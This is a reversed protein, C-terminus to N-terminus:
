LVRWEIPELGPLKGGYFRKATNYELDVLTGGNKNANTSCCSTKPCDSDDCTDVITAEMEKGTRPNRLMIKKLKWKKAWDKRNRDNPSQYFAVINNSEVWERPKRENFAAFAGEWKCGNYYKCESQNASKNRCCEPYSTYHTATARNWGGSFAPVVPAPPAPPAPPALADVSGVCNLNNVCCRGANEAWGWTTGAPCVWSAAPAATVSVAPVPRPTRSAKTRKPAKTRNPAKTSVRPTPTPRAFFVSTPRPSPSPSLTVSPSPSVSPSSPVLLSPSVSPSVLPLVTTTSDLLYEDALGDDALGDDAEALEALEALSAFRDITVSHNSKVLWVLWLAWLALAVAAVTRRKM